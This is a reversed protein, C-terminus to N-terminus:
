AVAGPRKPRARYLAHRLGGRGARHCEYRFGQRVLAREFRREPRESWVTLVGVRSLAAHIRALGQLGLVPDADGSPGEFLDLISADFRQGGRAAAAAIEASVDGVVIRVRPDSLASDSLGALPGRCWEVVVPLLEVVVVQADPSLTDLASRLTFGMGLGAILVRPAAVGKLVETALEALARESRHAASTMVVRKDLTLLFDDEARRRLEVEGWETPEKGLTEWPRTM